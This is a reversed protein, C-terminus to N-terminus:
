RAGGPRHATHDNMQPIKNGALCGATGATRHREAIGPPREDTIMATLPRLITVSNSTKSPFETRPVEHKVAGGLRHKSQMELIPQRTM